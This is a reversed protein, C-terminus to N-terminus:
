DGPDGSAAPAVTEAEKGRRARLAWFALLAVGIAVVALSTWQSGTMSFFRKDVRVSDTVLRMTGYWIGFTLTLVGERRPLRNLWILFWLLFFAGIIDYLATQHVGVGAALQQGRPGFLTASERTIELIRGGQLVGSCVEGACELPPALTGGHYTFALLWGTPKGLHDGIILDGIRGVVIGLALGIAVGDVAQFFRYGRARLIPVNLLLAGAIGGLLSIGGKWVALMEFFGDFESFHAIVYFLRAGIIAGVLAWITSSQIHEPTLGRKPGERMFVMAGLLFGIAIFIGHPSLAFADGFRFRDLVPWGVAALFASM